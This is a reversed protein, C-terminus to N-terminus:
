FKFNLSLGTSNETKDVATTPISTYHIVENDLSVSARKNFAYELSTNSSSRTLEEMGLAVFKQKMSINDTLQGTYKASVRLGAGEISPSNDTYDITVNSIGGSLNIAHRKTKLVTHEYGVGVMTFSDIKALADKQYYAFGRASSRDTLFYSAKYGLSEQDTTDRRDQGRGRSISTKKVAATLTHQWPKETNFNQNHVAKASAKIKRNNTNGVSSDLSISVKGSWGEKAPKKAKKGQEDHAFSPTAFLAILPMIMAWVLFPHQTSHTPQTTNSLM